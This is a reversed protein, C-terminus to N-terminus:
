PTYTLRLAPVTVDTVSASRTLTSGASQASQVTFTVRMSELNCTLKPQPSGNPCAVTPLDSVFSAHGTSYNWVAVMGDSRVQLLQGNAYGSGIAGSTAFSSQAFGSVQIVNAFTAPDELGVLTWTSFSSGNAQTVVRHLGIFYMPASTLNTTVDLRKMTVGAQLVLLTSDVFAKFSTNSPNTSMVQSARANMASVQDASLTLQAPAPTPTTADGDCALILLTAALGVSLHSRMTRNSM